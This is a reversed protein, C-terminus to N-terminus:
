ANTASTNRHNEVKLQCVSCTVTDETVDLTVNKGFTSSKIHTPTAEAVEM